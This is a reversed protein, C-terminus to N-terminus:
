GGEQLSKETGKKIAEAINAKNALIAPRMFPQARARSTGFEVHIAYNVIKHSKPNTVYGGARVGVEWINDAPRAVAEKRISAKLSGTDVPCLAKADEKVQDAVKDLAARVNADMGGEVRLLKAKIRDGGIIEVSM